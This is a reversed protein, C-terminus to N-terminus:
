SMEQAIKVVLRLTLMLMDGNNYSEQHNFGRAPFVQKVKGIPGSGSLHPVTGDGRADQPEPAFDLEAKGEVLVRRSGDSM